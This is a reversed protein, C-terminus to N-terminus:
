EGAKLMAEQLRNKFDQELQQHLKGFAENDIFAQSDGSLQRKRRNLM